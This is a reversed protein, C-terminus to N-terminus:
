VILAVAAVMTMLMALAHLVLEAIIATVAAVFGVVPLTGRLAFVLVELGTADVALVGLVQVFLAMGVQAILCFWVCVVVLAPVFTIMIVVIAVHTAVILRAPAIM